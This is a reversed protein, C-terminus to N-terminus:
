RILVTDRRQMTKGKCHQLAIVAWRFRFAFKRTKWTKTFARSEPIEVRGLTIRRYPSVGQAFAILRVAPECGHRGLGFHRGQLTLRKGGRVHGPTVLLRAKAPGVNPLPKPRPPRPTPQTTQSLGAELQPANGGPNTWLKEEEARRERLGKEFTTGPNIFRSLGLPKGDRQGYVDDFVGCNIQFLTDQCRANQTSTCKENAVPLSGANFVFDLLADFQNQTLPVKLDKNLQKEFQKLDKAFLADADAESIWELLVTGNREKTYYPKESPETGDFTCPGDHLKHGYGITCNSNASPTEHTWKEDDDNYLYHVLKETKEIFKRISESGSMKKQEASRRDMNCDRKTRKLQWTVTRKCKGLLVPTPSLWAYPWCADSEVSGSLEDDTSANGTGHLLDGQPGIAQKITKTGSETTCGSVVKVYARSGSVGVTPVFLTYGDTGSATVNFSGVLDGKLDIDESNWVDTGTVHCNYDRWAASVKLSASAVGIRGAVTFTYEDTETGHQGESPEGPATLTYTVTGVWWDEASAV